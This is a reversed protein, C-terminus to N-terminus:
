GPENFAYQIWNHDSKWRMKRGKCQKRGKTKAMYCYCKRREKGYGYLIQNHTGVCQDACEKVSDVDDM